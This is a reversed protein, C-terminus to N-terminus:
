ADDLSNLTYYVVRVRVTGVTLATDGDAAGGTATGTLVIPEASPLFAFPGMFNSKTNQTLADSAPTGYKDPDGATGISYTVTTGGGTLAVEVNSQVSLVFSGAPVTLVATEVAAPSIDADFVVMELGETASAGIREIVDGTGTGGGLRQVLSGDALSLTGAISLTGTSPLTATGAGDVSFLTTGTNNRVGWGTASTDTGLDMYTFGTALTNDIILNGTASVIWSDTADHKLNLDKGTGIMLDVSDALVLDGTATVVVDAGDATLVLDTGPTGFQVAGSDVIRIGTTFTNLLAWTNAAALLDTLEAGVVAEWTGAGDTNRYFLTDSDAADTRVYVSGQPSTHDPAGTGWEMRVNTDVTADSAGDWLVMGQKIAPPKQYRPAARTTLATSM